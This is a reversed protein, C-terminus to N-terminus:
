TALEHAFEPYCLDIAAKFFYTKGEAIAKTPWTGTAAAAASDFSDLTLESDDFKPITSPLTFGPMPLSVLDHSLQNQKQEMVVAQNNAQLSLQFRNCEAWEQVTLDRGREFRTVLDEITSLFTTLVADRISKLASGYRGPDTVTKVTNLRQQYTLDEEPFSLSTPTAKLIFETREFMVTLNTCQEEYEYTVTQFPASNETPLM